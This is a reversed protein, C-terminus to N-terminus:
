ALGQCLLSLTELEAETLGYADKGTVFMALNGAGGSNAGAAVFAPRQTERLVERLMTLCQPERYSKPLYATIGAEMLTAFSPEETEGALAVVPACPFREKFHAILMSTQGATTDVDLVILQPELNRDLAQDPECLTVQVDRGIQALSQAVRAAVFAPSRTPM